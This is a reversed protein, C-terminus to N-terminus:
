TKKNYVHKRKTFRDRNGLQILKLENGYNTFVQKKIFMRLFM